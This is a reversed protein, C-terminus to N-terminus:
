QKQTITQKMKMNTNENWLSYWRYDDTCRKCVDFHTNNMMIKSKKKILSPFDSNRVNGLVNLSETDNCCLIIDGDSTIFHVYAFTGCRFCCDKSESDSKFKANSGGRSHERRYFLEFGWEDAAKKILTFDERNIGLDLFNLQVKLSAPKIRSLHQLNLNLTKFNRRDGILESYMLDNSTLYSVQIQDIGSKILEKQKKPSLLVGNTVICTSINKEKLKQIYNSLAKNLLCEGLGCFMVIANDPLWNCLISFIEPEMLKHKRIVKNRPCFQCELNCISSVEIDFLPAKRILSNQIENIKSSSWSNVNEKIM